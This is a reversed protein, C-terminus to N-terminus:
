HAGLAKFEGTEQVDVVYGELESPIKKLLDPIRKVVFIRICPEGDCEGQGIGVVGPLSM